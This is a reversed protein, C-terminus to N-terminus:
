RLQGISRRAAEFFRFEHTGELPRREMAQDSRRVWLIHDNGKVVIWQKAGDPEILTVIAYDPTRSITALLKDWKLTYPRLVSIATTDASFHEFAPLLLDDMGYDAVAWNSSPLRITTDRSGTIRLFNEVVTASLHFSPEGPQIWTVVFSTPRQRDWIIRENGSMKDNRLLGATVENGMRNSTHYLIPGQTWTVSTDGPPLTTPAVNHMVQRIEHAIDTSPTRPSQSCAQTALLCLLSLGVLFQRTM